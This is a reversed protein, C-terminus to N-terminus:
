WALPMSTQKSRKRILILLRWGFCFDFFYNGLLVISFYVLFSILFRLDFWLRCIALFWGFNVRKVCMPVSVSVSVYGAFHRVIAATSGSSAYQYQFLFLILSLFHSNKWADFNKENPTCIKCIRNSEFM